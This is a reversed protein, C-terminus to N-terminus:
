KIEGTQVFNEIRAVVRDLLRVGSYSKPYNTDEFIQAANWPAIDFFTRAADFGIYNKGMHSYAPTHYNDLSLGRRKFWPDTSLWGMACATTGCSIKKPNGSFWLGLDFHLKHNKAIVPRLARLTDAARQLRERNM